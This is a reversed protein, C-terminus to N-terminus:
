WVRHVFLRIGRCPSYPIRRSAPAHAEQQHQQLKRPCSHTFVSKTSDVQNHLFFTASQTQQPKNYDTNFEGLIYFMGKWWRQVLFGIRRSCFTPSPTDELGQAEQQHQQRKHLCSTTFSLPRSKQKIFLFIM